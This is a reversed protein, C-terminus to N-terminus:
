SLVHRKFIKKIVEERVGIRKLICCYVLEIIAYTTDALEQDLLAYNGHTITNRYKVLRDIQPRSIYNILSQNEMYCKEIRDALAGQMHNITGLIYDYIKEDKLAEESKRHDKVVKKLNEILTIFNEEYQVSINAAEMESELSSLVERVKITDIIESDDDSEPVFGINFSPKGNENEIILDLLKDVSSDLDHFSICRYFNKKTDRTHDYKVYCTAIKEFPYYFNQCKDMLFIEDFRINHRFTMFKCMEFIYRIMHMISDIKKDQEFSLLLEVGATKISDGEEISYKERVISHIALEGNIKKNSLKFRKSDDKFQIKTGTSEDHLINLSSQLFLKNLIGGRFCIRRYTQINEHPSVLYLSTNLKCEECVNLDQGSFIYVYQESSTKGLIFGDTQYVCIPARKCGFDTRFLICQFGDLVFSINEYEVLKGYFKKSM